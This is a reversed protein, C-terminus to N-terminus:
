PLTADEDFPLHWAAKFYVANALVLRTASNVVGPAILNTIRGETQDGVWVNIRIRSSEPAGRFDTEMLGAGYSQQLTSLFLSRFERYQQGWVANAINLEFGKSEGETPTGVRSDLHSQLDHFAPHM